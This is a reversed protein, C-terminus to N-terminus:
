IEVSMNYDLEHVHNQLENLLEKLLDEIEGLTNDWATKVEYHDEEYILKIEVHWLIHHYYITLITRGDHVDNELNNSMTLVYKGLSIKKDKIPLVIMPYQTYPLRKGPKVTDEEEDDFPHLPM